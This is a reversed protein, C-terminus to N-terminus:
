VRSGEAQVYAQGHKLLEYIYIGERTPRSQETIYRHYGELLQDSPLPVYLYEKAYVVAKLDGSNGYHAILELPLGYNEVWLNLVWFLEESSPLEEDLQLAGYSGRIVRRITADQVTYAVVYDQSIGVKNLMEYNYNLSKKQVYFFLCHNIDIFYVRNGWFHHWLNQM